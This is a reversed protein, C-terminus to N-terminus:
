HGRVNRRNSVAINGVLRDIDFVASEIEELKDFINDTNKEMHREIDDMRTELRHLYLEVLVGIHRLAVIGLASVACAIILAAVKM